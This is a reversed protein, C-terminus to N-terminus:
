AGQSEPYHDLAGIVFGRIDEPVSLSAELFASKVRTPEFLGDAVLIPTAKFQTPLAEGTDVAAHEYGRGARWTLAHEGRTKDYCLQFGVPRDHEDLWVILDLDSSSFWRRKVEGAIQRVDAVERLTDM